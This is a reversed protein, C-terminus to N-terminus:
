ELGYEIFKNNLIGKQESLAQEQKLKDSLNALEKDLHAFLTVNFKLM